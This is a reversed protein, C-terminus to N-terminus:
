PLYPFICTYIVTLAGNDLHATLYMFWFYSCLNSNCIMAKETNSHPWNLVTCPRIYIRSRKYVQTHALLFPDYFIESVNKMVVGACKTCDRSTPGDCTICNEHCQNCTNTTNDAYSNKGCTRLCVPRGNSPMQQWYRCTICNWSVLSCTACTDDCRVCMDNYLSLSNNLTKPAKDSKFFGDPCASQPAQCEVSANNYENLLSLQCSDCGGPQINPAPGTCSYFIIPSSSPMFQYTTPM